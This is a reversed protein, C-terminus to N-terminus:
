KKNGYRWYFELAIFLIFVLQIIGLTIAALDFPRFIYRLRDVGLLQTTCVSALILIYITGHMTTGGVQYIYYRFNTIAM